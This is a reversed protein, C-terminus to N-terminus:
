QIRRIATMKGYASAIRAVATALPERTVQMFHGNAHLLQDASTMIGVHGNWFVLDGRRLADLRDTPLAAGLQEQMDSDRPCAIGAANLATQVLGSCDLGLATKGGWSYPMGLYREAVAVFDPANDGLPALHGAIAYRGGALEAYKEGINLVNVAANMPLLAAPQAKHDPGPYSYSLPVRVRHTPAGAPRALSEESVYGVYGDNELQVWAWGERREFVRVTEGQLAQTTQIADFRPERRISAIPDVIQLLDGASFRDAEIRGRLRLDALDPRFAHLRPDLMIM